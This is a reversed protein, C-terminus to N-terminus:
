SRGRPIILPISVARYNPGGEQIDGFVADETTTYKELDQVEGVNNTVTPALDNDVEKEKNSFM